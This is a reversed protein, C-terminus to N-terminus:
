FEAGLGVKVVSGLRNFNLYAFDLNVPIGINLGSLGLGFTFNEEDYNLKYGGRLSLLNKYTYEVGFNLKEPSDSPHLAEVSLSLRTPSNHEGIIEGAIGLRFISPM